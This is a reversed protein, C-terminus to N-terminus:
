EDRGGGLGWSKPSVNLENKDSQLKEKSDIMSMVQTAFLCRSSLFELIM